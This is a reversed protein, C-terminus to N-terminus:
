CISHPLYYLFMTFSVMDATNLEFAMLDLSFGSVRQNHSRECLWRNVTELYVLCLDLILKGVVLGLRLQLQPLRLVLRLHTDLGPHLWRMRSQNFQNWVSM